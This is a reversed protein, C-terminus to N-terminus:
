QSRRRHWPGFRLSLIGLLAIALALFTAGRSSLAPVTVVAAATVCITVAGDGTSTLLSSIYSSGTAEIFSGGGGGFFSHGGSSGGGGGSFGGGGGGGADGGAGGGFGGNANDTGGAADGPPSIQHGGDGSDDGDTGASLFGGGGGGDSGAGGAGAAGGAGGAIGGGAAGSTGLQAPGGAAGGGSGGGGGAAVVLTGGPAFVLSGGGGGGGRDNGPNLVAAAGANGVIVSLNTFGNVPVGAVIHAGVGGAFSVNRECLHRARGGPNEGQSLHRRFGRSHYQAHAWMDCNVRHTMNVSRNWAGTVAALARVAACSSPRHTWASPRMRRRPLATSAARRSKLHNALTRRLSLRRLRDAAM